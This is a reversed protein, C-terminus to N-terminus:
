LSLRARHNHAQWVNLPENSTRDRRGVARCGGKGRRVGRMVREACGGPWGVQRVIEQEEFRRVAARAIKRIRKTTKDVEDEVAWRVQDSIHSVINECEDDLDHRVQDTTHADARELEMTGRETIKHLEAKKNDVDEEFEM